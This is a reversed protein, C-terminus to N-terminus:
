SKWLAEANKLLIARVPSADAGKIKLPLAILTYVGAPAQSLDIGELIAMNNKHIAQHSSLIKDEAPDVSPTDIGVLIVKKRNLEAILEPSLSNFDNSWALPDPFSNTKFLVRPAQIPIKNLHVPFIREGRAAKVEIVQCPGFYFNLSREDISEGDRHYHNPADTHAGIHLTTQIHSLTLHQGSKTEMVITRSFKQDGPFVASRESIPPSIDFYSPVDHAAATM